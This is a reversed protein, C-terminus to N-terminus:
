ITERSDLDADEWGKMYEPDEPMEPETGSSVGANWDNYGQEYPTVPIHDDIIDSGYYERILRKLQRKTIKV